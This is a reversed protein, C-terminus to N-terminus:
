SSPTLEPTTLPTLVLTAQCNVRKVRGRWPRDNLADLCERVMKKLQEENAALVGGIQKLQLKGAIWREVKCASAEVRNKQKPSAPVCTIAQMDYHSCIDLIVPPIIGYNRDARIVLAKANDM